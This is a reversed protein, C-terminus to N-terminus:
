AQGAIRGTITHVVDRAQDALAYNCARVGVVINRDLAIAHQCAFGDPAEAVERKVSLVSGDDTLDVFHNTEPENYPHEVSVDRDLCSRWTTAITDFVDRAADTTPFAVVAQSVNPLYNNSPAAVGLGRFASVDRGELASSPILYVLPECKKPTVPDPAVDSVADSRYTVVVSPEDLVAELERPSVLLSGIDLPASRAPSPNAVILAAVVVATVVTSVAATLWVPHRRWWPRQIPRPDVAPRWPQTPGAPAVPAGSLAARTARALQDATQFRASPDKALGAAVVHDLGVPLGLLSPRPPPAMMHAAIQEAATRGPYPRRGTLCEYLVCTLAYVDARHDVHGDAFREPAMYAVSGLTQGTQTLGTDEVARAIGFDILYAFDRHSLLINSPKVDRHVLGARHATDLAAAIADIVTVVRAPPLPGEAVVKALDRGEIFRMDVYLRGDLEGFRHIPVVHPENLGAAVRAERLFRTRFEEDHAFQPPLVKIAVVRDTSTDYARYVEGMGGRGLLDLMRYPGFDAREM